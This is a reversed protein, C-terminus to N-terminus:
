DLKRLGGVVKPAPKIKGRKEMGIQMLRGKNRWIYGMSTANRKHFDDERALDILRCVAKVPMDQLSYKQGFFDLLLKCYRRNQERSGDMPLGNMSKSLYDLCANIDARGYQTM